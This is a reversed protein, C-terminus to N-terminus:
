GILNWKILKDDLVPKHIRLLRAQTSESYEPKWDQDQTINIFHVFIRSYYM